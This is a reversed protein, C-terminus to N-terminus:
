LFLSTKTFLVARIYRLIIRSSDTSCALKAVYGCARFASSAIFFVKGILLKNKLTQPVWDSHTSVLVADDVALWEEFRNFAPSAHATM